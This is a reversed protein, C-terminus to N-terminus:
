DKAPKRGAGPTRLRENPYRLDYSPVEYDGAGHRGAIIYTAHVGPGGPSGVRAIRVLRGTRLWPYYKPTPRHKGGIRALDGPQFKMVM